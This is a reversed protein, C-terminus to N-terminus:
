VVSIESLSLFLHYFYCVRTPSLLNHNKNVRNEVIQSIMKQHCLTSYIQFPSANEENETYQNIKISTLPSLPSDTSNIRYHQYVCSVSLSM